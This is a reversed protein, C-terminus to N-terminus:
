RPYTDPESVFSSSLFCKRLLGTRLESVARQLKGISRRVDAASPRTPEEIPTKLSYADYEAGYSRAHQSGALYRARSVYDQASSLFTQPMSGMEQGGESGGAEDYESLYLTLSGDPQLLYLSGDPELYPLPPIDLRRRMVRVWRRRRCWTSSPADSAGNTRSTSPGILGSTMVGAGTLLRELQPPVESTWHDDPDDLHRAYQWGETADCKPPTLDLTWDSSHGLRLAFGWTCHSVVLLWFFSRESGERPTAADGKANVRKLNFPDDLLPLQVDSRWAAIRQPGDEPPHVTLEFPAKRGKKGLGSASFKPRGGNVALTKLRTDLRQNEYIVLPITTHVAIPDYPSSSGQWREAEAKQLIECIWVEFVAAAADYATEGWNNRILPNAAQKTVLYLVVPLHGKSAANVTSFIFFM